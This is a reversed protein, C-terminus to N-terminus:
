LELHSPSESSHALAFVLLQLPYGLSLICLSKSRCSQFTGLLLVSAKDKHLSACQTRSPRCPITRQMSWLSKMRKSLHCCRTSKKGWQTACTKSLSGKINAKDNSPGDVHKKIMANNPLGQMPFLLRQFKSWISSKTSSSKSWIIKIETMMLPPTMSQHYKKIIVDEDHSQNGERSHGEKHHSMGERAQHDHHTDLYEIWDWCSKVYKTTLVWYLPKWIHRKYLALSFM